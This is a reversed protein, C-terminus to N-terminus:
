EDAVPRIGNYVARGGIQALVEAPRRGLQSAIEAATMPQNNNLLLLRFAAETIPMGRAIFNKDQARYRRVLYAIKPISRVEGTQDDVLDVWGELEETLAEQYEPPLLQRLSNINKGEREFWTFDIHFRTSETPHFFKM